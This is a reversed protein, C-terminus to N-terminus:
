EGKFSSLFRKQKLYQVYNIYIKNDTDKEFLRKLLLKKSGETIFSIAIGGSGYGIMAIRKRKENKELFKIMSFFPSAVGLDGLKDAVIGDKYVDTHIGQKKLTNYISRGDPQQIAIYNIEEISCNINKTLGNLLETIVPEYSITRLGLDRIFKEGNRRFREGLTEKTICFSSEFRALLNNGSGVIFAAAGAGFPHEYVADPNAFPADSAIIIAYGERAKVYDIASFLANVGARPTDTIDTTFTNPTSGIAYSITASSLKENYPSSTSAFFIASIDKSPINFWKLGNRAAEVGMTISDEDYAPVSKEIVNPANFIGWAKIYEEAKIRYKPLYFGYGIIGAMRDGKM